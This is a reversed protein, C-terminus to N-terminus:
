VSGGADLVELVLVFPPMPPLRDVVIMVLGVLLTGPLPVETMMGPASSGTVGEVGIGVLGVVVVADVVVKVSDVTGEVSGSTM